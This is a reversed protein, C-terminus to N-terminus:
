YRVDPLYAVTPATGEEELLKFAERSSQNALDEIEEVTGFVRADAVCATVCVPQPTEGEITRSLCFDCKDVTKDLKDAYAVEEYATYKEGFYGVSLDILYRAGYPCAQICTECGICKEKDVVVIGDETRKSTAGQSCAAVCKPNDCQMCLMPVINRVTDPYIGETSRDVRSRTVKPPTGNAAKCSTMCAQCGVCKKLDILMSYAM